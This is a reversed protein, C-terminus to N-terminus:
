CDLEPKKALAWFIRMVPLERTTLKQQLKTQSKLVLEIYLVIIKRSISVSRLCVDRHRM